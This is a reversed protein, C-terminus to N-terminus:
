KADGLKANMSPSSLWTAVDKGLSKTCRGLMGCTGKFGGWAGGTTYRLAQFTGKVKGDEWLTGDIQVFKAGTWAGGGVGTMNTIKVALANGTKVKSADDVMTVDFNGKAFDKIFGPIKTQLQCENKISDSVSLGEKFSAEKELSLASGDKALATRPLAIVTLLALPLLLSPILSRKM